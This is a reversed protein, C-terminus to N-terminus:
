FTLGAECLMGLEDLRSTQHPAGGSQEVSTVPLLARVGLLGRHARDRFLEVGAQMTLAPRIDPDLAGHGLAFAGVGLGLYPTWSIRGTEVANGPLSTQSSWLPERTM